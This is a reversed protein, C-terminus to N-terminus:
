RQAGAQADQWAQFQTLVQSCWPYYLARVDRGSPGQDDVRPHLRDRARIMEAMGKDLWSWQEATLTLTLTLTPPVTAAQAGPLVYPRVPDGPGAYPQETLDPGAHRGQQPAPQYQVEVYGEPPGQILRHDDPSHVAPLNTCGCAEQGPGPQIQENM